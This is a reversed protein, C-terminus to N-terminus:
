ESDSPQISPDKARGATGGSGVWGAVGPLREYCATLVGM